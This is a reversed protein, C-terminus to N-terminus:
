KTTSPGLAISEPLAEGNHLFGSIADLMVAREKATLPQMGLAKLLTAINIDIIAKMRESLTAAASVAAFYSVTALLLALLAFLASLIAFKPTIHKSSLTIIFSIIPFLAVVAFAITLNASTDLNLKASAVASRQEKAAVQEIRPWLTSTDVSYRKSGYEDLAALINGLPTPEIWTDEPFRELTGRVRSYDLLSDTEKLIDLQKRARSNSIACLKKWEMLETEWNPPIRTKLQLEAVSWLDDPSRGFNIPDLSSQYACIRALQGYSVACYLEFIAKKIDRREFREYIWTAWLLL